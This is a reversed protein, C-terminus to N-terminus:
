FKLRKIEKHRDFFEEVCVIQLYIKVDDCAQGPNNNNIERLLYINLIMNEEILAIEEINLDRQYERWCTRSANELDGLKLCWEFFTLDDCNKKPNRGNIMKFFPDSSLFSIM